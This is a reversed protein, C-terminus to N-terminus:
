VGKGVQVFRGQSPCWCRKKVPLLIVSLAGAALASDGTGLEWGACRQCQYYALSASTPHCAMRPCSEAMMVNVATTRSVVKAQVAGSGSAVGHGTVAVAMAGAATDTGVGVAVTDGVSVGVGCAVGVVVAVGKGALVGAGVDVGSGVAVAVGIGVGVRVGRGVLVGSGVLM